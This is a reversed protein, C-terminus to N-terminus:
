RRHDDPLRDRSDVGWRLASADLAILAGIVVIWVLLIEMERAEVTNSADDWLYIGSGTTNAGLRDSEVHHL